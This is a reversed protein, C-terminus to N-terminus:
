AGRGCSASLAAPQRDCPGPGRTGLAMRRDLQRAGLLPALRRLRRDPRLRGLARAGQRFLRQDVGLEGLDLRLCRLRLRDGGFQALLDLLLRAPARRPRRHRVQPCPSARGSRARAATARWRLSEGRVLARLLSRWGARGDPVRAPPHPPPAPGGRRARTRQRRSLEVASFHGALHRAAARAPARVPDSRADPTCQSGALRAQEPVRQAAPRRGSDLPQLAREIADKNWAGPARVPLPPTTGPARGAAGRAAAPGPEHRCLGPLATGGCDGRSARSCSCASRWCM